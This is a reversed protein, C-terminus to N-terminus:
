PLFSNNSGFIPPSSSEDIIRDDVRQNSWMLVLDVGNRDGRLNEEEAPVGEFRPFIPLLSKFTALLSFSLTPFAQM